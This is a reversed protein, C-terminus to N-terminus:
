EVKNVKEFAHNILRITPKRNKKNRMKFHCDECATEGNSVVYKLEPFKYQSKIHHVLLDECNSNGCHICTFNDRCLVKATFIIKERM